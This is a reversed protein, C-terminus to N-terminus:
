SEKRVYIVEGSDAYSMRRLVKDLAQGRKATWRMQAGMADASEQTLRILRMGIGGRRYGARVFMSLLTGVVATSHMDPVM